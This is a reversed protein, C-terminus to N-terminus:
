RVNRRALYSQQEVADEDTYAIDDLGGPDYTGLGLRDYQLQMAHHWSAAHISFVLRGDPMMAPRIADNRERVVSFEAGDEGQWYEHILRAM